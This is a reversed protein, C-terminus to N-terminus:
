RGEITFYPNAISASHEGLWIKLDTRTLKFFQGSNTIDTFTAAATQEVNSTTTTGPIFEVLIPSMTVGDGTYTTSIFGAIDEL